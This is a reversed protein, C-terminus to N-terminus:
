GNLIMFLYEHPGIMLSGDAIRQRFSGCPFYRSGGRRPRGTEYVPTRFFEASLPQMMSVLVGQCVGDIPIKTRM